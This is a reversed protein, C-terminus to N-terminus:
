VFRKGFINAYSYGSWEQYVSALARNWSAGSATITGITLYDSDHLATIRDAAARFESPYLSKLQSKISM